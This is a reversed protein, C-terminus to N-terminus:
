LPIILYAFRFTTILILNIADSWISEFHYFFMKWFALLLNNINAHQVAVFAFQLRETSWRFSSFLVMAVAFPNNWTIYYNILNIQNRHVRHNLHHRRNSLHTSTFLFFTGSVLDFVRIDNALISFYLALKRTAGYISDVERSKMWQFNTDPSIKLKFLDSKSFNWFITQWFM